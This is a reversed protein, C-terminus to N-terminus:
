DLISFIGQCSVPEILLGASQRSLQGSRWCLCITNRMDFVVSVKCFQALLRFSSIFGSQISFLMGISTNSFFLTYYSLSRKAIKKAKRLTKLTCRNSQPTSPPYLPPVANLALGVQGILRIFCSRTNPCAYCHTLLLIPHRCFYITQILGFCLKPFEPFKM